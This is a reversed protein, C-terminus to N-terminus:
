IAHAHQRSPLPTPLATRSGVYLVALAAVFVLTSQTFYGTGRIFMDITYAVVVCRSFTVAAGATGTRARLAKMCRAAFVAFALALLVGFGGFESVIKCLVFSGDTLNEDIGGTVERIMEAASVQTDHMGLQQFGIGWGSSIAWNEQILQWGELYVLNSLGRGSFDLRATYYDLGLLPMSLLLLVAVPVTLLVLPLRRCAAALVLCGALLSLSQLMMGAAIGALVWRTKAREPARVAWYLFVPLFALSFHSTETFPFISKPYDYRPQLGALQFLAVVCLVWFSVRLALDVTRDPCRTLAGGLAVGGAVVCALPVFSALCRQLNGLPVLRDAIIAHLFLLSPVLVILLATRVDFDLLSRPMVSSPLVDNLLCVLVVLCAAMVTGVMHSTAVGVYQPMPPLLQATLLVVILLPASLARRLRTQESRHSDSEILM